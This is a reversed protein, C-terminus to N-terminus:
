LVTIVNVVHRCYEVVFLLSDDYTAIRLSCISCSFSSLMNINILIVGHLTQFQWEGQMQYHYYLNRKLQVENIQLCCKANSALQRPHINTVNVGDITYVTKVELM